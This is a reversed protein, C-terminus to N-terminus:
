PSIVAERPLRFQPQVFEGHARGQSVATCGTGEGSRHGTHYIAKIATTQMHYSPLVVAGPWWVQTRGPTPQASAVFASGRGHTAGAAPCSLTVSGWREQPPLCTSDPSCGIRSQSSSYRCSCISGQLPLRTSPWSWSRHQVLHFSPWVCWWHHCPRRWCEWKRLVSVSYSPEPASPSTPHFQPTCWYCRPQEQPYLCGAEQFEHRWLNHYLTTYHHVDIVDHSSKPISADLKKSNMGECTTICHRITTYMLLMTAARPSLPMWSRPIWAKVPQSVTDYLPTCWYCRPQEQPYLCGAEQFEHRWLNHYLTMYHPVDIVDHSSKPISADLKKSNMGECTTICHRITTYMLLMTAARPSLPMWSRPIWAKVPQSVTDYLPTCWYCRPQEQPYLCGAEQFEHRWLNHYLTTYHHVDIVDHSSKPISADLKKSNMGECTTICHRITTYMLLVTAARPSLPMWSRPIWAKVPQSVTDYLPTCWYCRPQEQPYLCGAEQFEHRWLNHYLTTYHHVDIVDHSSKPISADLKKSNMGECTTICHRITTYMLLMTAARPSLPMWSRPIWAKVPQSVTDYLPTCWYCRPQEQPYLCGAEQFEHRWLNHYLTTYHHVDIVGHSSKPISADLKKSNMGECTTICHRITTYMLLMTAARPSLPMWSIPIWAKVPQSVTDYLPTCWYCRPQEQPYLCGAEQFEHRWLNHYLTTYHHVDIVVHSSKPISADLKKSNMGECTTICHRITTYMLLVTAARPSLPMWSRPIWAKVPQSVTDYLPTCWYCRPQEQPYLCGAEQFEHRWLNHYLTTYHHVDIVDHSSKPISADLKKSNMGECTTICHRITTYM